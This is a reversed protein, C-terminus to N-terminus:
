KDKSDQRIYPIDPKRGLFHWLIRTLEIAAQTSEILYINRETLVMIGVLFPNSAGIWFTLVHKLICYIVSGVRM